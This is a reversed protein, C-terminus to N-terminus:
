NQEATVWNQEYMDSSSIEDNEAISPVRCNTHNCLSLQEISVSGVWCKMDYAMVSIFM